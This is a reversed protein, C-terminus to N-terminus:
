EINNVAGSVQQELKYLAAHFAKEFDVEYANNFYLEDGINCAIGISQIHRKKQYVYVEVKRLAWDKWWPKQFCGHIKDVLSQDIKANVNKIKIEMM